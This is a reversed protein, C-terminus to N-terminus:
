KKDGKKANKRKRNYDLICARRAEDPTDGMMVRVEECIIENKEEDSM